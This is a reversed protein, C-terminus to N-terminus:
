FHKWCIFTNMFMSFVLAHARIVHFIWRVVLYMDTVVLLDCKFHCCHKLLSVMAKWLSWSSVVSSGCGCRPFLGPPCGWWWQCHFLAPSVSSDLDTLEGTLHLHRQTCFRATNWLHSKYCIQRSILLLRNLSPKKNQTFARATFHDRCRESTQSAHPLVMEGQKVPTTKGKYASETGRVTFPYLWADWCHGVQHSKWSPYLNKKWHM